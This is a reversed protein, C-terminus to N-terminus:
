SKWNNIHMELLKKCSGTQFSLGLKEFTVKERQLGSCFKEHLRNLEYHMMRQNDQGRKQQLYKENNVVCLQQDMEFFLSTYYIEQRAILFLLVILPIIFMYVIIAQSSAQGAILMAQQTLM